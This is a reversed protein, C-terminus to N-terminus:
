CEQETFGTLRGYAEYSPSVKGTSISQDALYLGSVTTDVDRSGLLFLYMEMKDEGYYSALKSEIRDAEAAFNNAVKPTVRPGSLAVDHFLVMATDECYRKEGALWMNAAASASFADVYTSLKWDTIFQVADLMAYADGGPSNLEVIYEAPELGWSCRLNYHNFVTDTMHRVSNKNVETDFRYVYKDSAAPADLRYAHAASFLAGATHSLMAEYELEAERYGEYGKEKRLDARMDALYDRMDDAVSSAMAVIDLIANPVSKFNKVMTTVDSIVNAMDAPKFPAGKSTLVKMAEIAVNQSVRDRLTFVSGGVKIDAGTRLLRNVLARNSEDRGRVSASPFKSGLMEDVDIFVHTFASQSKAEYATVKIGSATEFASPVRSFAAENATLIASPRYNAAYNEISVKM